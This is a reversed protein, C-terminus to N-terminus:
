ACNSDAHIKGSPTQRITFRITFFIHHDFTRGFGCLFLLTQACMQRGPPGLHPSVQFNSWGYFDFKPTVGLKLIKQCYVQLTDVHETSKINIYGRTTTYLEKL